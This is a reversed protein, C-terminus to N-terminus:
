SPRRRCSGTPSRVVADLSEVQDVINAVVQVATCGTGLIVVRKGTLDLQPDWEATHVIEGEFTALGEVDPINPANLMGLATVVARARHREVTGDASRTVVTWRQDDENWDASLVSTSLRINRYLDYKEAVGRM